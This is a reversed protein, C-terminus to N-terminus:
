VGLWLRLRPAFAAALLQRRTVRYTQWGAAGLDGDRDRDRDMARRREHASRGDTELIVRHEPWAFDAYYRRGSHGYVEYQCIPTPVPLADIRVLAEEELPTTTRRNRARDPDIARLSAIGRHGPYRDGAIAVEAETLHRQFLAEGVLRELPRGRRHAALDLLVRAPETIPLGRVRIVPLETRTRHVVLDPRSKAHGLTTVHHAQSPREAWELLEAASWSSLVTRGRVSLVMAARLADDTIVPSLAYVRPAVVFLTMARVRHVIGSPGLGAAVLQSHEIVGRQRRCVAVIRGQTHSKQTTYPLVISVGGVRFSWRRGM